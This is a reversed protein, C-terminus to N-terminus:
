LRFLYIAGAGNVTNDTQTGDIGTANSDEQPASVVLLHADASVSLIIGFQDGAETNSAKIYSSPTWVGASRTYMHVAGSFSAATNAQDGDVGTANSADGFAGVFLTNGDASMVSAYGFYANAATNTAKVYAEQTWVSGSRTFVYEAGSCGNSNNSQDGGVGRANSSECYAGVALTNGDSSVSVSTGFRDNAGPNSAKVYAEQAWVMGTRRYVYVAGAANMSNNSQDGNIGPANSDEEYAPVALTDGDGSLVAGTYSYWDNAATNSSKVYAQQAWVGATREFVYVAGSASAANNSQDGGIGTANSDEGYAGVALTDGDSALSVRRGFYDVNQTNSAKIYAQQSWTSGSRTFVYVAGAWTQSDNSQDGGIGTANSSESNAGVALTNGDYSIAVADGFYDGMGTNSAKIYAEQVWTGGSRVFVFVAGSDMVSDDNADGDIGTAASDERASAVAITNGDGAVSVVGFYDIAGVASPKVYERPIVGQNAVAVDAVALGSYLPDVSAGAATVVLYNTRGDVVGDDVGTVMVTQPTSWNGTTFTISAPAVIGEMTNSSSLGVTVSASPQSGLVMTFSATSGLENTLLGMTPTVIVQSSDDDVNMGTPDAVDLDDYAADASVTNGTVITFAQDGDDAFDDLGQVTVTHPTAFDAMTFTLLAPSVSAEAPNNTSLAITVPGVPQANLTIDFTDTGGAETTSLGSTRSVTVGPMEDDTNTAMVDSPNLGGYNLDDSAAADTVVTYAISGDAIADDVGTLTVDQAVNWNGSTFTVHDPSVTGEGSDSSSLAVTVDATPQTALVVSFTATTGVESTVLGTLPAVVIAAVDNDSNSGAVDAVSMGEYTLDASEADSTVINFAQDGDIVNDDVGTVTVVHPTAYDTSTFILTAPGVSAEGVRDSSVTITVDEVPQTNLTISFTDTAGDEDTVIGSTRSVAVGPTEDDSNIVNVDSADLGGYNPDDSEAPATIVTFSVNGDAVADDVGTVTVIHDLNWDIDTLVVRAPYVTGEDTNSSTIAIEVDATPRTSLTVNFTASTGSESTLLGITPTVIVAPVTTSPVVCNHEEDCVRGEGCVFGVPRGQLSSCFPMTLDDCNVYGFRCPDGAPFCITGCAVGPDTPTMTLPECGAIPDPNCWQEDDCGPEVSSPTCLGEVCGQEACTAVPGCETVDNCFTVTPCFEPASPSCRPDVCQGQLCTNLAASGGPLPCEVGVCDRTIHVPLVMNGTLRFAITRDVLFTGDPRLLRVRVRYDGTALQFSATRVGRGFDTGFVATAANEDLIRATSPNSLGDMLQTEVTRFEPGPVLGTILRVELTVPDDSCASAFSLAACLLLFRSFDRMVGLLKECAFPTTM